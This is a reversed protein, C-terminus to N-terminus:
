CLDNKTKEGKKEKIEIALDLVDDPIKTLDIIM